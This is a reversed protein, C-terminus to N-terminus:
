HGVDVFYATFLCLLLVPASLFGLRPRTVAVVTAVLALAVLLWIWTPSMIGGESSRRLDPAYYPDFGYFRAVMFAAAAPALTPILRNRAATSITVVIGVLIALATGNLALWQFKADGGPTAGISIWGLAIATEYVTGAVTVILLVVTVLEVGSLSYRM